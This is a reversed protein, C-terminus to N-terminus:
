AVPALLDEYDNWDPARLAEAFRDFTWPWSAVHGNRDIYWSRCGSAWVTDQVRLRVAAEFREMAEARPALARAEGRAIRGILALIYDFQTEATMLWSFNGIPSSPGGIMFWNPFGPTAVTLYSRNAEAWADHLTAGGPGEVRMPRFFRHTDFGTALVIVDFARVTGDATEIGEPRIRRIPDTVLEANPRQIAEYFESSMVLRKCGVQYDPTLRARLDPDAVTELHAECAEVLKAYAGPNENVIAAAFLEVQRRNLKDYEAALEEPDARYEARREPPIEKNPLPLIWQATRQFLSLQATRETAAGVLQTATSGSGIVAVRKGELTEDEPWRATHFARGQFDALGEIKPVVPHHLVGTATVVVDFAGQPGQDTEIEWRGDVFRASVVEHGFRIRRVVDHREAVDRFYALLEEGEAWVHTWDPNPAFSYRYAHSPVDCAVGPYRNDRWTGGLDRAKEFCVVDGYGAQALRIMAMIGSAGAGIVAIRFAADM